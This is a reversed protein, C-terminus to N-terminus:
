AVPFMVTEPDEATVFPVEAVSVEVAPFTSTLPPETSIMWATLPVFTLSIAEPATVVPVWLSVALWSRVIELVVDRMVVPAPINSDPRSRKIRDALLEVSPLVVVAELSTDIIEPPVVAIFPFM